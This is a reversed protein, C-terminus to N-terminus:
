MSATNEVKLVSLEKIKGRYVVVFAALAALATLAWAIPYAVYLMSADRPLHPLVFYIWLLKFGCMGSLSLIMATVAKKMGKLAATLCEYIGILFYPLCVIYMMKMGEAIIQDKAEEDDSVYLSLLPEGLLTVLVGLTVGIVVVMVLSMKLIKKVRDYKNAGMNQSVITIVATAIGSLVVGIYGEINGAATAGAIVIEGYSNKATQVLVNSLALVSSQLGVPVGNSLIGNVMERCAALKKFSFNCMGELRTMYVVIMVAALTQAISTGIGVGAAGMGLGVVAILNAVVNAAGAIAMFIMTHYTDGAARLSASLFNLVMMAPIGLFYARMYEIADPLMEEPVETWILLPKTLLIGVVMLAIGAFLSIFAATHIYKQVAEEDRAGIKQAVCIGVGAAIGLFFNIFVRILPGCAGVAGMAFAGNEAFQGVVIMDASNYLSQLLHNAIIPLVFIIMKKLMPGETFDVFQKKKIQSM